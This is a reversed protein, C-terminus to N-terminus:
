HPTFGHSNPTVTGLDLARPVLTERCPRSVDFVSKLNLKDKVFLSQSESSCAVTELSIFNTDQDGGTSDTVNQDQTVDSDPDATISPSNKTPSGQPSLTCSISKYSSSRSSKPSADPTTTYIRKNNLEYSKVKQLCQLAATFNEGFSKSHDLRFTANKISAKYDFHLNFLTEFNNLLNIETDTERSNSSKNHVISIVDEVFDFILAPDDINGESLKLCSEVNEINPVNQNSLKFRSCIEKFLQQLTAQFLSETRLLWQGCKAMAESIIESQYYDKEEQSLKSIVQNIYVSDSIILTMALCHQAHKMFAPSILIRKVANRVVPTSLEEKVIALSEFKMIFSEILENLVPTSLKTVQLKHQDIKNIIGEFNIRLKKEQEFVRRLDKIFQSDNHRHYKRLFVEIEYNSMILKNKLELLMNGIITPKTEGVLTKLTTKLQDEIIKSLVGVGLRVQKFHILAEREFGKELLYLGICLHRYDPSNQPNNAIDIENQNVHMNRDNVLPILSSQTMDILKNLKKQQLINIAFEDSINKIFYLRFNFGASELYQCWNEVQKLAKSHTQLQDRESVTLEINNYLKNFTDNDNSTLSRLSHGEHTLTALAKFVTNETDNSKSDVDIAFRTFKILNTCILDKEISDSKVKQIFKRDLYKKVNDVVTKSWEREMGNIIESGCRLEEAIIKLIAKTLSSLQISGLNSLFKQENTLHEESFDIALKLFTTLFFQIKDKNSIASNDIDSFEKLLLTYRAYRHKNRDSGITYQRHKILTAYVKERIVNWSSDVLVHIPANITELDTIKYRHNFEANTNIIPSHKDEFEAYLSKFKCFQKTAQAYFGNRYLEWFLCYHAYSKSLRTQSAANEVKPNFYHSSRELNALDMIKFDFITENLVTKQNKACLKIRRRITEHEKVYKYFNFGKSALRDLSKEISAITSDTINNNNKIVVLKGFLDSILVRESKTNLAVKSSYSKCNEYCSEKLIPLYQPFTATLNKFLNQFRFGFHKSYLKILESILKNQQKQPDWSKIILEVFTLREDELNRRGLYGKTHGSLGFLAQFKEGDSRSQVDISKLLQILRVQLWNVQNVQYEEALVSEFENRINDWSIGSRRTLSIIDHLEKSFLYSRSSVSAQNYANSLIRLGDSHFERGMLHCALIIKAFLKNLDLTGTNTITKGKQVATFLERLNIFSQGNLLYPSKFLQTLSRQFFDSNIYSTLDVGADAINDFWQELKEIIQDVKVNDNSEERNASLKTATYLSIEDRSLTELESILVLLKVFEKDIRCPTQRIAQSIYDYLKNSKLQGVKVERSMFRENVDTLNEPSLLGSSKITALLERSLSSIPAHRLHLGNLANGLKDSTNLDSHSLENIKPILINILESIVVPQKDKTEIFLKLIDDRISRRGNKIKEPSSEGRYRLVADFLEFFLHQNNVTALDIWFEENPLLRYIAPSISVLISIGESQNNNAFLLLGLLWSFYQKELNIDDASTVPRNVTSNTIIKKIENLCNKKTKESWKGDKTLNNIFSTLKKNANFGSSRIIGADVAKALVDEIATIESHKLSNGSFINNLANELQQVM